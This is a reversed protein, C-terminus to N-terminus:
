DGEYAVHEPEERMRIVEIRKRARYLTTFTRTAYIAGFTSSVSLIKQDTTWFPWWWARYQVYFENQCENSKIRFKM